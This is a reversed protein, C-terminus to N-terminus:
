RAAETLQEFRKLFATRAWEASWDRIPEPIPQIGDAWPGWLEPDPTMLDRVETAFAVRDAWRVSGPMEHPLGYRDCIARMIRKDLDRFAKFEPLHKIPSPLDGIIAEPADHLLGWLADEPECIQSVKVSHQAVSYAPRDERSHGMFRPIRSLATAIFRIDLDEPRPDAPNFRSGLSTQICAGVPASIPPPM